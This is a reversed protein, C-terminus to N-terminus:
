YVLRFKSIEFFNFLVSVNILSNIPDTNFINVTFFSPAPQNIYGVTVTPQPFTFAPPTGGGTSWGSICCMVQDVSIFPINSPVLTDNFVQISLGTLPPIPTGADNFVIVGQRSNITTSPIATTVDAGTVKVLSLGGANVDGSVTIDGLINFDVPTLTSNGYMLIQNSSTSFLRNIGDITNSSSNIRMGSGFDQFQYLGFILTQTATISGGFITNANLHLNTNSSITSTTSNISLGATDHLTFGGTSNSTSNPLSVLQGTSNFRTMTNATGVPTSADVYAKNAAQNPETPAPVMCNNRFLANDFVQISSNLSDGPILPGQPVFSSM